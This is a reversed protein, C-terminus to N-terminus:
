MHQLLYNIEGPNQQCFNPEDQISSNGRDLLEVSNEKPFEISENVCWTDIKFVYPKEAEEIVEGLTEGKHTLTTNYHEKCPFLVDERMETSISNLGEQTIQFIM